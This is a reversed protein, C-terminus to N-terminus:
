SGSYGRRVKKRPEGSMRRSGAMSELTRYLLTSLGPYHRLLGARAEDPLGVICDLALLNASEVLDAIGVDAAAEWSIRSPAKLGFARVPSGDSGVGVIQLRKHAGRLAALKEAGILGTAAPATSDDVAIITLPAGCALEDISDVCESVLGPLEDAAASLAELDPEGRADCPYVLCSALLNYKAAGRTAQTANAPIYAAWEAATPPRVSIVLGIEEFEIDVVDPRGTIRSARSCALLALDDPLRRM